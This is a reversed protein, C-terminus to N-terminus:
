ILLSRYTLFLQEPPVKPITVLLGCYSYHPLDQNLDSPDVLSFVPPVIPILRPQTKAADPHFAHCHSTHTDHPEEHACSCSHHDEDQECHAHTMGSLDHGPSVRHWYDVLPHTVTVHFSFFLWSTATFLALSRMM